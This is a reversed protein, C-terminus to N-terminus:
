MATREGSPVGVWLVAYELVEGGKLGPQNSGGEVWQMLAVCPAHSDMHYRKCHLSSLLLSTLPSPQTHHVAGATNSHLPPTCWHTHHTSNICLPLPQVLPLYCAHIPSPGRGGGLILHVHAHNCITAQISPPTISEWLPDMVAPVLHYLPM